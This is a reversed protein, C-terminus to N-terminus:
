IWYANSHFAAAYRSVQDKVAIQPDVKVKVICSNNNAVPFMCASSDVDIYQSAPIISAQLVNMAKGSVNLIAFSAELHNDVVKLEGVDSQL